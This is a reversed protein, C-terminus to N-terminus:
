CIPEAYRSSCSDVDPSQFSFGFLDSIRRVRRVGLAHLVSLDLRIAALISDGGGCPNLGSHYAGSADRNGSNVLEFSNTDPHILAVSFDFPFRCRLLGGISQHLDKSYPAAVKAYRGVSRCHLLRPEVAVARDLHAVAVTLITPENSRRKFDPLIDLEILVPVEQAGVRIADLNPNFSGRGLYQDEGVRECDFLEFTFRARSGRQCVAPPGV